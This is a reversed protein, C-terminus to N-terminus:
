EEAFDFRSSVPHVGANGNAFPAPECTKPATAFRAAKARDALVRYREVSRRLRTFSDPDVTGFM